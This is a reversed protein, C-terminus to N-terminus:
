QKKKAAAIKIINELAADDVDDLSNIYLCGKGTSHKGLTKLYANQDPTDTLVYLTINAKRPSFGIKFWDLERGSAYKLHVDGFGIIASGWMKGGDGTAKEMMGLIALCDKQKQGTVTKKIFDAPSGAVKFTKNGATKAKSKAPATKKAPKKQAAKKAVTKKAPAKKSVAKKTITKKAM